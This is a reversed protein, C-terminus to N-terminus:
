NTSRWDRPSVGVVRKFARSFAEDSDYGVEHAVSSVKLQTDRLRHAAVQMRWRTLYQMPPVGVIRSFHEALASRSAGVSDALKQLTWSVAIDKHLLALTRGGLPDRLAALWSSDSAPASRFYRRLIEVFMVEGLRMLVSREGGLVEQSESLAFAILASLPDDNDTPAPIRMVRPLTSLLPNYPGMNCGLFGCILKNKEPGPGGETIVAPAENSTMSRFFDISATEDEATPYQPTNAIKYADGRPLILTDGSELLLPSEDNVAAWCPGKTVIHYSIICDSSTLIHRSLTRGDAVGIGYPWAPEWLFFVAGQLRITDLVDSIPDNALIRTLADSSVGSVCIGSAPDSSRSEPDHDRSAM